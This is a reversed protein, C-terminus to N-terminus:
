ERWLIGSLVLEEFMEIAMRKPQSRKFWTGFGGKSECLVESGLIYYVNGLHEITVKFCGSSPIPRHITDGNKNKLGHLVHEVPKYVVWWLPDGYFVDGKKPPDLFLKFKRALRIFM